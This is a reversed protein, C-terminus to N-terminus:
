GDGAETVTGLHIALRGPGTGNGSSLATRYTSPGSFAVRGLLAALTPDVAAFEGARSAAAADALDAHATWSVPGDVPLEIQGSEM